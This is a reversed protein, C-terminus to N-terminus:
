PAYITLRATQGRRSAAAITFPEGNVRVQVNDANGFLVSLPAQGGVSVRRGARGLDFFLRRGGADTIETWCEGSFELALKVEDIAAPAEAVDAVTEAAAPADDPPAEDEVPEPEDAVAASETDATDAQPPAVAGADPEAPVPQETSPPSDAPDRVVLYWYLVMGAILIAVAAFWPGPSLERRAKRVKGVVPPMGTARNLTYYDAMVDDISVGVLQAYKKLHGKAFVPAGLTEFENNELARVKYEDLHLEKAVEGLTIQQRRRAAALRKGGQPEGAAEPEREQEPSETEEAM